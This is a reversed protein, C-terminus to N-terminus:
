ITTRGQKVLTGTVSGLFSASGPFIYGAGTLSITGSITNSIRLDFVGNSMLYVNATVGSRANFNSRQNAAALNHDVQVVLHGQQVSVYSYDIAAEAGSGVGTGAWLKYLYRNTTYWISGAVPHASPNGVQILMEVGNAGNRTATVPIGDTLLLAGQTVFPVWNNPNRGNIQISYLAYNLTRSRKTLSIHDEVSDFVLGTLEALTSNSRGLDAVPVPTPTAFVALALQFAVLISFKM